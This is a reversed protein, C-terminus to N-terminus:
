TGHLQDLPTTMLRVCLYLLTTIPSMLEGRVHHARTFLRSLVKTKTPLKVLRLTSLVAICGLLRVTDMGYVAHRM